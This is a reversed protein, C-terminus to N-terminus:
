TWSATAVATSLLATLVVSARIAPVSGRSVAATIPASMLACVQQAIWAALFATACAHVVCASAAAAASTLAPQTNATIVAMLPLASASSVLPRVVHATVAAITRVSVCPVTRARLARKVNACATRASATTRAPWLVCKSQAIRALGPMTVSVNAMTAIAMALAAMTIQAPSSTSTRRSRATRVKIARRVCASAMRRAHAM